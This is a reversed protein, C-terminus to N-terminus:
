ACREKRKKREKKTMTCHSHPLFFFLCVTYVISGQLSVHERQSPGAYVLSQHPRNLGLTASSGLSVHAGLNGGHLSLGVVSM